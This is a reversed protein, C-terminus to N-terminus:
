LNSRIQVLEMVKEYNHVPITYYENGEGKRIIIIIEDPKM